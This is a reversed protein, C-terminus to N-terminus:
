NNLIKNGLETFKYLSKNLKQADKHRHILGARALDNVSNQIIARSLKMYSNDKFIKTHPLEFYGEFKECKPAVKGMYFFLGIELYSLKGPEIGNEQLKKFDIIHKMIYLFHFGLLTPAESLLFFLSLGRL